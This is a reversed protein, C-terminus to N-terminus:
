KNKERVVPAITCRCNIDESAVGFGAPYSASQGDIKFKEDVPIPGKKGLKKHNTRVRDDNSDIWEKLVEFGDDEQNFQKYSENTASNLAKTTETQAIRLARAENFAPFGEDAIAKAIDRNSLGDTIGRKVARRVAQEQTKVIQGALKKIQRVTPEVNSFIFDLPRTRGTMAYLEEITDNGTILYTARYAKGIINTIAELEVRRGFITAFDIAKKETRYQIALVEARKSYRKQADELYIETARKMQREAPTYAKSIWRSWIVNREQKSRGLGKEEIPAAKKESLRKKEASIVRRMHSLGRSGVTLWKIQAVVGALRFDKFHRASWAERLRIAKEETETQAESDRKAIPVLRRFQLNGLVNGGRNWIEPWNEKLDEAEKYPFRDFNSNRLSIKKDDGDEPFNSPDRDGVSGKMELNIELADIFGIESLEELRKEEANSLPHGDPLLDTDHRGSRFRGNRLAYLFSNVRGMAWQEASTVSPRVSSPNTKYAGIGRWYVVALRFKTTTKNKNGEVAENHERAKREIAKKANASLEEFAEKMNGVKALEDEKAREISQSKKKAEKSVLSVLAEELVTEPEITEVEEKVFPSDKLGEYAYADEASMGNDMHITIRELKESRISQLADVGSFDLEVRFSSDYMRAVRTLAQELKRARQQQNTWYVIDSQRATAYNADPLGLVSSPVGTVASINERVMTRLSEFEIDRPTLNLTEVKIQGSLAMAGGQETMGKYASTIEQRRRRDWIDAPDAPSLLVDPRGQRSVNSALRQAHLDATLEENLAEVLGIGYLEGSAGTDWSASRIHIVREPPYEVTEGGDQYQYGSVLKTKSPVIKVSQPHLRFLSTPRSLSGVILIYANGTMLLDVIFQERFLYGDTISNPQKFLELVPSSEIEVAKAGEGKLLKIPLSSIDVSSKSVCAHTYAHRAYVAMSERLNFNPSVGNGSDWSAGHEPVKPNNVTRGFARRIWSPVLVDFLTRKQIENSM